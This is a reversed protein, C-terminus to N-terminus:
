ISLSIVHTMSCPNVLAFLALKGLISKNISPSNKAIKHSYVRTEHPGAVGIGDRSVGYLEGYWKAVSIKIFYRNLYCHHNSIFSLRLFSQKNNLKSGLSSWQVVYTSNEFRCFLTFSVDFHDECFYLHTSPLIATSDRRALKLWKDRITKKHPVFVFLKNPTKISTNDCQPVACWKYVKSNM